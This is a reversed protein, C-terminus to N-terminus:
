GASVPRQVMHPRFNYRAALPSSVGLRETPTARPVGLPSTPNTPEVPTPVRAGGPLASPVQSFAPAASTWGQPVSL